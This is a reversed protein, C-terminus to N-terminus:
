EILGRCDCGDERCSGMKEIFGGPLPKRRGRAVEHQDKLHGCPCREGALTELFEQANSEGAAASRRRLEAARRADYALARATRRRLM